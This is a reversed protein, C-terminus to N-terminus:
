EDSLDPKPNTRVEVEGLYGKAHQTGGALKVEVDPFGERNVAIPASVEGRRLTVLPGGMPGVHYGIDEDWNSTNVIRVSRTM